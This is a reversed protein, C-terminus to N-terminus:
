LFGEPAPHVHMDQVMGGEPPPRVTFLLIWAAIILCIILVMGGEPPPRVTFLSPQEWLSPELM